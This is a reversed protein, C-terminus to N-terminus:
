KALHVNVQLEKLAQEGYVLLNKISFEDTSTKNDRFDKRVWERLENRSSIDPVDKIARLLDRYLKLVKRQLM